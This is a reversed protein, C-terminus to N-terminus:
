DFASMKLSISKHPRLYLAVDGMIFDRAALLAAHNVRACNVLYPELFQSRSSEELKTVSKHYAEIYQQPSDPYYGVLDLRVRCLQSLRLLFHYNLKIVGVQANYPTFATDPIVMLVGDGTLAPCDNFDSSSRGSLRCLVDVDPDGKVLAQIIGVLKAKSSYDDSNIGRPGPQDSLSSSENTNSVLKCDMSASSGIGDLPFGRPWSNPAGLCAYPNFVLPSPLDGFTARTCELAVPSDSHPIGNETYPLAIHEGVDFIVQSLCCCM